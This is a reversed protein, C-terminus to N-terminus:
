VSVAHTALADQRSAGAARQRTFELARRGPTYFPFMYGELGPVVVKVVPVGIDERTLDVVIIQDLGVRRLKEITVQLDGEFSDTAESCRDSVDVTAPVAELEELVELTDSQKMLYRRHDFVDDRSGAIYIARAQVAETLARIMAIEPDPHCGYGKYVGLQRVNTDYIVGLYVPIETDIGCDYLVPRIGASAFRDILEGILPQIVTDISVRPLSAGTYRSAVQHRAIADREIAEYLAAALAELLVNGSALGNSGMQFSTLDWGRGRHHPAMDVANLPVLAEQQNVIDWGAIWREPRKPNFLSDKILQLDEQAVIAHSGALENYPAFIQPLQVAEAHFHELTEMAASVTAATLTFGKGSGNALTRSNPRMAIVTSIPVRDLETVNALRTVGMKKFYPRIRELTEEPACVRHTGHYFQKAARLAQGRYFIPATGNHEVRQDAPEVQM